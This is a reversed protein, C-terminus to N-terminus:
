DQGDQSGTEFIQRTSPHDRFSKAYEQKAAEVQPHDKGTFALYLTVYISRWFGLGLQKCVITFNWLLLM